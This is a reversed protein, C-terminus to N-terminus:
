RSDTSSMGAVVFILRYRKSGKKRQSPCSVPKGKTSVM